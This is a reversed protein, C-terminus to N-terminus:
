QDGESERHPVTPIIKETRGAKQRELFELYQRHNADQSREDGHMNRISAIVAPINGYRM